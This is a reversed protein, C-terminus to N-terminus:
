AASSRAVRLQFGGLLARLAAPRVPKHLLPVGARRAARTLEATHDATILAAMARGQIEAVRQLLELGNSGDGLHYDALVADITECSLLRLAESTGPAKLVRVGWQELLAQMADLIALDNDVVLVRFASLAIPEAPASRSRQRAPRTAQAVRPVCVGFVSGRGPQSRLTLEHELLRALRDCISLGLGL